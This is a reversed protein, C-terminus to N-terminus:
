NSVGDTIIDIFVVFLLYFSVCGNPYALTLTYARTVVVLGSGSIKFVTVYVTAIIITLSVISSGSITPLRLM